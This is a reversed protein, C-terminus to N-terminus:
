VTHIGIGFGKLKECLQEVLRGAGLLLLKRHSSSGPTAVRQKLLNFIFTQHYHNEVIENFNVRIMGNRM